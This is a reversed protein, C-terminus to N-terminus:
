QPNDGVVVFQWRAPSYRAQTQLVVKTGPVGLVGLGHQPNQQPNKLAVVRGAISRKIYRSLRSKNALTCDGERGGPQLGVPELVAAILPNGTLHDLAESATFATTGFRAVLAEVLATDSTRATLTQDRYTTLNQLFGEVGAAELIGGLVSSWKEFSALVATGSRRNHNEVWNRGLVLCAWILRGRNTKLFADFDYKFTRQRPDEMNADIRVPVNRRHLEASFEIGVGTYVFSGVVPCEIDRSFGLERGAYSQSTIAAALDGNDVSGSLNDFLVYPPVRRLTSLLSKQFEDSDSPKAKARLNAGMFLIAPVHTILTGGEAHTTKDIHYAPCPGDIMARVFPQLIMALFNARSAAGRKWNPLPYDQEDKDTSYIPTTDGGTFSDSFPVDRIAEALLWWKAEDVDVDTIRDPLAPIELKPDRAVYTETVPDYGDTMRLSGDAGFVPVNALGRIVPLTWESVPTGEVSTVIVPDLQLSAKTRRHLEYVWGAHTLPETYRGGPRGSIRVIEAPETASLFLSPPKNRDEVIRRTAEVARDIAGGRTSNNAMERKRASALAADLDKRRMKTADAIAKVRNSVALQEEIPRRSLLVIIETVDAEPANPQLLAIKADITGLASDTAAAARERESREKEQEAWVGPCWERTILSMADTVHHKECLKDLYWLRDNGSANQCTQHRCSAGFAKGDRQGSGDWVRFARDKEDILSHKEANPCECDIGDGYEHRVDHSCERLWTSIQFDHGAVRAFEVLGPTVFATAPRVGDEGTAGHAALARAVAPNINKAGKQHIEVAELDLTKGALVIIEHKGPGIEADMPILPVYHLRNADCCAGDFPVGLETCFAAYRAKWEDTAEQQSAGREAFVFPKELVFMARVRPCPAHRVLYKVGGEIHQMGEFQFGALVHEDMLLDERLYALIDQEMPQVGALNRRRMFQLMAEQPIETRAKGFSWTTWLVAFLGREAIASVIKEVPAGIDYDALLLYNARMNRALRQVGRKSGDEPEVVAGQLMCMGDKSPGRIFETLQGGVLEGLACETNHWEQDQRYKGFAISIRRALLADDLTGVVLADKLKGEPLENVVDDSM